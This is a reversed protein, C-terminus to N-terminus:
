LTWPSRMPRQMRSVADESGVVTQKVPDWSLTENTRISLDTMHCMIDSQIASNLTSIPQERSLVSDVFNHNHDKSQPLKIPGPDRGARRIEDRSAQFVGRTVAVWGDTGMFLTCNKQMKLGELNLSPIVQHATETDLFRLKTGNKYQAEMDWHTVANYYSNEPVTGSAKYTHPIGMNSHDAWWQLQDMPHAGWGAVFGIGYDYHFWASQSTYCRPRFYPAQPAPGLWLDYDLGEPIPEETPTPGGSRGEPAWVYIEKVDGIHGNLVLEIGIRCAASSRQQTGYQFIRGYDDVIARAALDQGITLGLPKECYVDKGARAAALSMPIHWYDGTSIHVADVDDRALVDRFDNYHHPVNWDAAREVRRELIPDCVAIIQSKAYRNYSAASKSRSGCALLAVNVRNSPAVAGNQGLVVSPIITPFGLIASASLSTKLFNRRTLETQKM